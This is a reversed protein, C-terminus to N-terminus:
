LQTVSYGRARLLALLNDEGLLHGLGVVVLVPEGSTQLRTDLLKMWRKNRDTVLVKRLKGHVRFQEASLRMLKDINGHRWAEVVMARHDPLKALESARLALWDAMLADPFGAFMKLQFRTAELPSVPLGRELARAFLTTGLQKHPNIGLTAFCAKRLMIFALWPRVHEIRALRMGAMDLAGQLADMQGKDLLDSLTQGSPLLGLKRILQGLKAPNEPPTPDGELILESSRQFAATIADPLPYDAEKLMLTDGALYLTRNPSVVKWLSTTAPAASSPNSEAAAKAHATSGAAAFLLACLALACLTPRRSKRTHM